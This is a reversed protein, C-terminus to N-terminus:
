KGDAYRKQYERWTDMSKQLALECDMQINYCQLGFKGEYGQDKVFKVFAYTDFDGEGLPRILRDWGMHQTDGGDSGNVSVMRLRPMVSEVKAQWGEEGEVKLMHCLNIIVGVNPRNALLAIQDAHAITECYFDVHPYVAIEINLPLAFDALLAISEAFLADAHEKDEVSGDNHLHLAVLLDRNRSDMMINKLEEHYRVEGEEINMAIYMEPMDLGVADMAKRLPVYTEEKHGALGDYGLRKVLAAQEEFTTPANPLTRVGNNFVYFINDLSKAEEQQKTQTCAMWVLGFAMYIWFNKMM